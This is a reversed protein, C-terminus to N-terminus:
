KCPSLLYPATHSADKKFIVGMDRANKIKTNAARDELGENQMIRAKLDNSRLEKDDGFIMAFNSRWREIEKQREGMLIATPDIFRTVVNDVEELAFDFGQAGDTETDRASKPILSYYGKEKTATYSECQEQDLVTGVAGRMNVDDRSKNQHSVVLLTRGVKLESLHVQVESAQEQNNVDTVFKGIHDIIAFHPQYRELKARIFPWYDKRPMGLMPFIILNDANEGITARIARYRPLLSLKSMEVDFVVVLNPRATPTISGFKKGNLLPALIAYSCLSKGQKPKADLTVLGERPFAPRDGMKCWAVVPPLEEFPNLADPDSEWIPRTKDPNIVIDALTAETPLTDALKAAAQERAAQLEKDKDSM